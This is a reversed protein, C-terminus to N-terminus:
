NGGHSAIGASSTLRPTITHSRVAGRIPRYYGGTSLMPNYFPDPKGNPLRDVGAVYNGYGLRFKATDLLHPDYPTEVDRSISEHHTLVAEGDCIVKYGQNRVRLCIEVDGFGVAFNEDFGGVADFLDRKIMLCAATVASFDRTVVAPVNSSTHRFHYPSRYTEGKLYHDAIGIVLVIGAHQITEDPYLLVAGVIGVDDRCLKDRMSELWGDRIAEIDNNLFM